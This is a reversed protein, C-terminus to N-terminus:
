RIRLDVEEVQRGPDVDMWSVAADPVGLELGVADAVDIGLRELDRLILGRPVSVVYPMGLLGLSFM